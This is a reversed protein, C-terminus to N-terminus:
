RIPRAVLIGTARRIASVYGLLDTDSIEVLGGSLPAHLVRMTGTAERHAFGTHTVDLGEISTAFALVDGTELRDSIAPIRETPVVWRPLDDLERERTAIQQVVDAHRLAPYSDRNTTMFRLPRRDPTGGLEGGLDRLHGRRQNDAIWESFYHLRSAYGSRIGSRYRLSEIERGFSQWTAPYAQRALRAVALCSEVLSVCDFRTLWLTLPESAPDGGAELYAELTFAEYPTGIALEGVRAAAAGLSGTAQSSEARLAAVWTKLRQQDESDPTVPLAHLPEGAHLRDPWALVAASGLVASLWDRRSWPDTRSEM